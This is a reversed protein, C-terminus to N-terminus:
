ADMLDPRRRRRRSSGGRQRARSRGAVRDDPLGFLNLTGRDRPNLYRYELDLGLGRRTSVLPAIDAIKWRGNLSSYPDQFLIQVEARMAQLDAGRLAAMDRGRFFVRGGAAPVLRVITKATTSKGCGSEGVLGLTEGARISFSVDDVARVTLPKRLFGRALAFQTHLGDVRLLEEGPATM